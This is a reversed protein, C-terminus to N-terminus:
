RHFTTSTAGRAPAHISLADTVHSFALVATAGRAPAHISLFDKVGSLELLVRRAGRPRTSQFRLIYRIRTRATTAGRAPAHISLRGGSDMRGGGQTAGRAPAHISLCASAMKAACRCTAGRAPAHISLGPRQGATGQRVRRAGRPRTSQFVNWAHVPFHLVADRGERARPNFSRRIRSPSLFTNDRGERARPNFTPPAEM